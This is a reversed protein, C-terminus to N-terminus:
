DDRPVVEARVELLMQKKTGPRIIEVVITTGVEADTVLRNLLPFSWERIPLGNVSVIRDGPVVGARAAPSDPFTERIEIYELGKRFTIFKWFNFQFKGNKIGFYGLPNGEVKYPEMVVRNQAESCNNPVLGLCSYEDSSVAYVTAAQFTILVLLGVHQLILRALSALLIVARPMFLDPRKKNTEKVKQTTLIGYM